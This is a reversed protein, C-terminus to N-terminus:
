YMEDYGVAHTERSIPIVKANPDIPPFIEVARCLTRDFIAEGGFYPVLMIPPGQPPAKHRRRLKVTAVKRLKTKIQAM